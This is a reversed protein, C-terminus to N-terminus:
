PKPAPRPEPPRERRTTFRRGKLAPAIKARDAPSLTQMFGIVANELKVRGRMEDVRAEDLKAKVLAPDMAAGKGLDAAQARAVRAARFDVWADKAADRVVVHLREQDAASLSKAAVFLPTSTRLAASREKAVHHVMYAASAGAGILFVNLILSAALAIKLTRSSM